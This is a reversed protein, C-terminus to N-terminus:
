GKPRTLTLKQLRLEYIVCGNKSYCKRTMQLLTWQINKQESAEVLEGKVWM